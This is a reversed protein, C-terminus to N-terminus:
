PDFDSEWKSEDSSYPSHANVKFLSYELQSISFNHHDKNWMYIKLTNGKLEEGRLYMTHIVRNWQQIKAVRDVQSSEWRLSKGVSNELSVVLQAGTPLQVPKIQSEVVLLLTANDFYKDIDVSFGKLFEMSSDVQFGPSFSSSNQVDGKGTKKVENTYDNRDTNLKQLGLQPEFESGKTKSFLSICSLSGYHISKLIFPFKSRIVDEIGEPAPRTWAYLFYPKDTGKVLESLKSMDKEDRIDYMDFKSAYGDRGFYFDLYYPSNSIVVKTISDANYQKELEQTTEAIGKFEGFHQKQYYHGFVVTSCIGSVLFVALLLRQIKGFEDGAGLFLLMILFPFSFILVSHQLVPNVYISYFFGLLMPLLFWILLIWPAVGLSGARKGKWSLVLSIVASVILLFVSDNFIYSIHRPIWNWGPKGLWLGVGRYTLHNLTIYLHPLFLLAAFLGSVLYAALVSKRLFFIGTIGVIIALLFSFYHNYLCAATSLSYGLLSFWQDKWGLNKQRTDLVISIWFYVMLLVFFLGSGYPRAIQSYLLPFELFALAAATFLGSVQGFLKKSILYSFYVALIGSIVFPLRIAMESTGFWRSWYWLFVQIGGPHGDVYFGGRVLEHFTNFRLRNIASLEDNSFSFASYHYFRLVAAVLLILWIWYKGPNSNKLENQFDLLNQKGM